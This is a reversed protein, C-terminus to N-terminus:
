GYGARVETCQAEKASSVLQIDHSKRLRRILQERMETAGHDAGLLAVYIKRVQSLRDASQTHAVTPCIALLLLLACCLTFCVTLRFRSVRM